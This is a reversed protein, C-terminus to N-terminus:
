RLWIVPLLLSNSLTRADMGNEPACLVRQQKARKVFRSKMEDRQEERKM